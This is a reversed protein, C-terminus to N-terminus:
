LPSSKLVTLFPTIRQLDKIKNPLTQNRPGAIYGNM